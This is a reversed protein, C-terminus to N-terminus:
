WKNVVFNVVDLEYNNLLDRGSADGVDGWEEM